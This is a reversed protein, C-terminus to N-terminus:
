FNIRSEETNHSHPRDESCSYECVTSTRLVLNTMKETVSALWITFLLLVFLALFHSPYLTDTAKKIGPWTDLQVCALCVKVLALSSSCLQQHLVSFISHDKTVLCDRGWTVSKLSFYDISDRKDGTGGQQNTSVLSKRGLGAEKWDRKRSSHIDNSLLLLKRIKCARTICSFGVFTMHFCMM